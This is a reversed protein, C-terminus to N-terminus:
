QGPPRPVDPQNDEARGIGAAQMAPAPAQQAGVRSLKVELDRFAALLNKNGAVQRIGKALVNPDSSVLMDALHRAVRQDVYRKGGIIAALALQNPDLSYSGTAALGGAMGLEVWQRVTSSNGLATRLKDMSQEVTLMADLQRYGSPGLVMELKARANPNGAIKNMVNVRDGTNGVDDIVKGLFGVRFMERDAPSAKSLLKAADGIAMPDHVFKIGAEIMDDAGFFRAAGARAVKYDPVLDDLHSKLASNLTRAEPTGIKDLNRKVHDWFELNPPVRNGQEDVRLTLGGTQKDIVFPSRIRPLGEITGRNAGTMVSARIANQVVPAQSIQEFGEDWMGQARPHSYAQRYAPNNQARAQAKLM